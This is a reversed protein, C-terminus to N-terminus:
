FRDIVEFPLSRGAIYSQRQQDDNFYAQIVYKGPKSQKDNTFKIEGEYNSAPVSRGWM